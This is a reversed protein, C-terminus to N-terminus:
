PKEKMDDLIVSGAANARDLNVMAHAHVGTVINSLNNDSTFPSNDNLFSLITHIEKKDQAQRTKTM